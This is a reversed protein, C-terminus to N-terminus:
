KYVVQKVLQSNTRELELKKIKLVQQVTYVQFIQRELFYGSRWNLVKKIVDTHRTFINCIVSGGYAQVLRRFRNEILEKDEETHVGEEEAKAMMWNFAQRYYPQFDIREVVGLGLVQKRWDQIALDKKIVLQLQEFWDKEKFQHYTSVRFLLSDPNSSDLPVSPEFARLLIACSLIRRMVKPLSNADHKGQVRKYLRQIPTDWEIEAVYLRLYESAVNIPLANDQIVKELDERTMSLKFRWVIQKSLVGVIVHRSGAFGRFTDELM